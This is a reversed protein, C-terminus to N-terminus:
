LGLLQKRAEIEDATVNAGGGGGGTTTPTNNALGKFYVNGNNGVWYVSAM